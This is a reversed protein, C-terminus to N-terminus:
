GLFEGPLLHHDRRRTASRARVGFGTSSRQTVRTGPSAVAGLAEEVSCAVDGLEDISVKRLASQIADNPDNATVPIDLHVIYRQDTDTSM